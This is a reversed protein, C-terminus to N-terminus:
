ILQPLDLCLYQFGFPELQITHSQLQEFTGGGTVEGLLDLDGGRTTM